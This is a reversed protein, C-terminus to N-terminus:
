RLVDVRFPIKASNLIKRDMKGQKCHQELLHLSRLHFDRLKSFLVSLVVLSMFASLNISLMPLIFLLVYLGLFMMVSAFSNTYYAQFITGVLQAKWSYPDSFLSSIQEPSAPRFICLMPFVFLNFSWSIHITKCLGECIKNEKPKLWVKESFNDGHQFPPPGIVGKGQIDIGKGQIEIGKGHLERDGLVQLVCLGVAVIIAFIKM